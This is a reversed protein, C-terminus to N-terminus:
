CVKKWCKHEEDDVYLVTDLKADTNGLVIAIRFGPKGPIYEPNTRLLNGLTRFKTYDVIEAVRDLDDIYCYAVAEYKALLLPDEEYSWTQPLNKLNM